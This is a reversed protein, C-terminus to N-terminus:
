TSELAEMLSAIVGATAGWVVRGDIHLEHSQYSVGM